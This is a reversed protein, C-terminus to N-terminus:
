KLARAIAKDIRDEITKWYLEAIAELFFRGEIGDQTNGFFIRDRDYDVHRSTTDGPSTENDFDDPMTVYRVDTGDNLFRMLDDASIIQNAANTVNSGAKAGVTIKISDGDEFAELDIPFSEEFNDVYSQLKPRVLSSMTQRSKTIVEDYIQELKPLRKPVIARTPM